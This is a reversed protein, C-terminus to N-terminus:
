WRIIINYLILLAIFLIGVTLRFLLQTDFTNGHLVEELEIVLYSPTCPISNLPITTTSLSQHALM